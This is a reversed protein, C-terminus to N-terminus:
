LLDAFYGFFISYVGFSILRLLSDQPVVSIVFWVFLHTHTHTHMEVPVLHDQLVFDM